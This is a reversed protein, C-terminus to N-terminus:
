GMENMTDARAILDDIRKRGFEKDLRAVTSQSATWYMEAFLVLPVPVPVRSRLEARKQTRKKEYDRGYQRHAERCADCM